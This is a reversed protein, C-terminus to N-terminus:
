LYIIKLIRKKTKKKSSTSSTSKKSLPPISLFSFLKKSNNNLPITTATMMFPEIHLSNRKNIEKVDRHFITSLWSTKEKKKKNKFNIMYESFSKRHQQKQSLSLANHHNYHHYQEPQIKVPHIQHIQHHHKLSKKKQIAIGNITITATSHDNLIIKDTTMNMSQNNDTINEHFDTISNTDSNDNSFNINNTKFSLSTLKAKNIQDTSSDKMQQLTNQYSINNNMSIITNASDNNDNGTSNDTSQSSLDNDDDDEEDDEEESSIYAISLTSKPFTHYKSNDTLPNYKPDVASTICSHNSPPPSSPWILDSCMINTSNDWNVGQSHSVSANNLKSYNNFNVQEM